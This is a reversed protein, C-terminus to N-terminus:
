RRYKYSKHKRGISMILNKGKFETIFNLGILYKEIYDIIEKNEKDEITNFRVLDKLIKYKEM